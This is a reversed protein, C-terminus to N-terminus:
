VFYTNRIAKLKERNVSTDDFIWRKTVDNYTWEPLYKKFAERCLWWARQGDILRKHGVETVWVLIYGDRYAIQM